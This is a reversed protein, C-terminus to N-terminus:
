GIGSTPTEQQKKIELSVLSIRFDSIIEWFEWIIGAVM